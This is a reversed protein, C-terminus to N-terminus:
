LNHFVKIESHLIGELVSLLFYTPFFDSPFFALFIGVFSPTHIVAPFHSLMDYSYRVVASRIDCNYKVTVTRNDCIPWIVSPM